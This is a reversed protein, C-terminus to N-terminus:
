KISEILTQVSDHASVYESANNTMEMLLEYIRLAKECYDLRKEAPIRESLGLRFNALALDELVRYDDTEQALTILIKLASKNNVDAVPQHGREKNIDAIRMHSKALNHKSAPDKAMRASRMDLELADTLYRTAETLDDTKLYIAGIKDLLGSTVHMLQINNRYEKEADRCVALGKNFYKLADRISGKITEEIEGFRRYVNATLLIANYRNGTIMERACIDLVENYLSKAKEVASSDGRYVKMLTNDAISFTDIAGGMTQWRDGDIDKLRSRIETYKDIYIDAEYPDSNKLFDALSSYAEALSRLAEVEGTAAELRECVDARARAYRVVDTHRKLQIFVAVLSSYIRARVRLMAIDETSGDSAAEDEPMLGNEVVFGALLDGADAFMGAEFMLTAINLVSECYKGLSADEYMAQMKKRLEVAQWCANITEEENHLRSYIRVKEDYVDALANDNRLSSGEFPKMAAEAKECYELAKNPDWAVGSGLHYMTILKVWAECCGNEASMRFINAAKAPDPETRIGNQYALAIYYLHEGDDNLLDKEDIGADEILRQRLTVGFADADDPDVMLANIGPYLEELNDLSKQDFRKMEAAVLPKNKRVADPYEHDAVYNGPEEFAPSVSMIFVDSDNLAKMINDDFSEGPILYEDYWIATDRCVDVSHIRRMLEQAFARDKKRYSLFVKSSFEEHIRGTDSESILVSSLFAALKDQYRLATPDRDYKNLFQLGGFIETNNFKGILRGTDDEEFLIPLVPINLRLAAPIETDLARSRERLLKQTVPVVVMRMDSLLDELEGEALSRDPEDEYFVACNEQAAFIDACVSRLHLELDDKHCSVYIRPQLGTLTGTRTIHQFM